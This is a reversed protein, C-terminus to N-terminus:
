GLQFTHKMWDLFPEVAPADANLYKSELAIGFPKGPEEQWALWTHVLAKQRKAAKFKCFDEKELQTITKEAFSLVKDGEPIMNAVFHELYGPGQNDPMIWIGVKPFGPEQVIIGRPNPSVSHLTDESFHTALISKIKAWRSEPGQDNADVVLGINTNAYNRLAEGFDIMANGFGGANKVFETRFKEESAYGIPPPLRRIKCLKSLVIADSGEVILIQSM